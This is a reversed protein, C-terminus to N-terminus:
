QDTTVKWYKQTVVTLTDTYSNVAPTGPINSQLVSFGSLLNTSFHVTYKKNTISGWRIVMNSDSLTPPESFSPVPEDVNLINIAFVKQTSLEGQDASQVRISFNSKVEYNFIVATLLNSGSITFSGNDESGTGSVLTYVFTNDADPDQTTLYCVHTGVPLNEEVSSCDLLINTPAYNSPDSSSVAFARIVLTGSNRGYRDGACIFYTTGAVCPFCVSVRPETSCAPGYGYKNTISSLSGCSGMMIELTAQYDSECTEVTATGTVLPVYSFWAGKYITGLGPTSDSTAGVTSVSYPTNEVLAVAGTCTDCVVPPKKFTTWANSFTTVYDCTILVYGNCQTSSVFNGVIYYASGGYTSMFSFPGAAMSFDWPSQIEGNCYYETAHFYTIQGNSVEFYTDGRVGPYIWGPYTGWAGDYQASVIRPFLFSTVLILGVIIKEM